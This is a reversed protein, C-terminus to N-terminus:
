ERAARTEARLTKDIPTDSSAWLRKFIEYDKRRCLACPRHGTALASAEDLFFLKIYSVSLPGESGDPHRLSCTIWADGFDRNGMFYGHAKSDFIRGWPDVRNQSTMPSGSREGAATNSIRTRASSYSTIHPGPRRVTATSATPGHMSQDRGDTCPSHARRSDLPWCAAFRPSVPGRSAARQVVSVATSQAPSARRSSRSPMAVKTARARHRM